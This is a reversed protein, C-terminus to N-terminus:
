HANLCFAFARVDLPQLLWTLGAPVLLLRWSLTALLTLVDHTLHSKAADVQLIIQCHTLMSPEPGCPTTCSGPMAQNLILALLRIMECFTVSTNWASSEVIFYTPDTIHEMIDHWVDFTVIHKDAIIIQPLLRQVAAINCIFAALTCYQRTMARTAKQRPPQHKSNKGQRVINGRARVQCMPIPSEDMNIILPIKGSARAEDTISAACQLALSAQSCELNLNTTGIEPCHQSGTQRSRFKNKTYNITPINCFTM